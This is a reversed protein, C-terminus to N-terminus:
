LLAQALSFIFIPGSQVEVFSMIHKTTAQAPTSARCYPCYAATTACAAPDGGHLPYYAWPRDQNMGANKQLTRQTSTTCMTWSCHTTAAITVSITVLRSTVTSRIWVAFPARLLAAAAGVLFTFMSVRLAFVFLRGARANKERKKRNQQM